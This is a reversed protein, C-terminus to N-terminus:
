ARAGAVMSRATEPLVSLATAEAVYVMYLALGVGRNVGTIFVNAM